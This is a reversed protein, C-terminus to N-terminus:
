PPPPTSVTKPSKSPERLSRLRPPSSPSLSSSSSSRPSPPPAHGGIARGGVSHCVCREIDWSFHRLVGVCEDVCVFVCM